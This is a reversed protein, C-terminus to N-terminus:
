DRSEATEIKRGQTSRISKCIDYEEPRAILM